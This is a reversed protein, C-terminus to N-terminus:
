LAFPNFISLLPLAGLIERQLAKINNGDVVIIDGAFVKPDEGTGRRISVLDFAAAMRQGGIQRFIAVRRPNATEDTGRAMAVAQLLTLDGTIPYIGPARVAGDLTVSRRTSSKVGVTIDPNQLYKEGLRKVLDARLQRTTKEVAKVNGILPLAINGTLDVEYDGSLDAVQFVNIKLTDLPAIRYDEEITAVAPADPAGFNEVKYPVAGGRTGACAGLLLAAALLLLIPLFRALGASSVPVLGRAVASGSAPTLDPNRVIIVETM